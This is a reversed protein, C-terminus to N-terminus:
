EQFWSWESYVWEHFKDSEELMCQLYKILYWAACQQIGIRRSLESSNPKKSNVIHWIAVCYKWLPLKAGQFVTGIRWSFQYHCKACKDIRRTSIYYKDKDKDWEQGCRPCKWEQFYDMIDMEIDNGFGGQKYPAYYDIADEWTEPVYRKSM